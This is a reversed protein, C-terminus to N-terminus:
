PSRANADICLILPCEVGVRQKITDTTDRWWNSPDEASQVHPSHLSAAFFSAAPSIVKILLMRENAVIVSIDDKAIFCHAGNKSGVPITTAVWIECGHTGAPTCRSAVRVYNAGM